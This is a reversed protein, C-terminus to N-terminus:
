ICKYYIFIVFYHFKLFIFIKNSIIALEKQHGLWFKSPLHDFHQSKIRNLANTDDVRGHDRPALARDKDNCVFCWYRTTSLIQFLHIPKWGSDLHEGSEYYIPKGIPNGLTDLPINPAEGVKVFCCPISLADTERFTFSLFL